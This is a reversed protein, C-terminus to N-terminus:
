FTQEYFLLSAADKAYSPALDRRRAIRRRIEDIKPRDDEIKKKRIWNQNQTSSALDRFSGKLADSTILLVRKEFRKEFIGGPLPNINSNLM